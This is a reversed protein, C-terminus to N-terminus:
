RKLAKIIINIIVFFFIIGFFPAFEFGGNSFMIFPIAQMAIVIFFVILFVRVAKINKVNSSTSQKEPKKIDQFGPNKKEQPKNPQVVSKKDQEDFLKDYKAFPDQDHDSM